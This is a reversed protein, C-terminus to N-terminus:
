EHGGAPPRAIAFIKEFCEHPNGPWMNCELAWEQVEQTASAEGLKYDSFAPRRQDQHPFCPASCSKPSNLAKELEPVIM